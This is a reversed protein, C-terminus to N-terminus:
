APGRPAPSPLPGFSKFYAAKHAGAQSKWSKESVPINKPSGGTAFLQSEGVVAALYFPRAMPLPCSATRREADGVNM